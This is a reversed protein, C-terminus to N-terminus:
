CTPCYDREPGDVWVQITQTASFVGDSVTFTVTKTGGYAWANWADATTATRNGFNWKYTPTRNQSFEPDVTGRGSFLATVGGMVETPASVVTATPAYQVTYSRSVSDKMPICSGTMDMVPHLYFTATDKAVHSGRTAAAEYYDVSCGSGTCAQLDAGDRRWEHKESGCPVFMVPLVYASYKATVTEGSAPVTVRTAPKTIIIAQGLATLPALMGVAALAAALINKM